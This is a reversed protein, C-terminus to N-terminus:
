EAQKKCMPFKEMRAVNRNMKQITERMNALQDLATLTDRTPLGGSRILVAVTEIDMKPDVAM